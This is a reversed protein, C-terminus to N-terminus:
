RPNQARRLINKVRATLELPNVPRVLFDDVVTSLINARFGEDASSGIAVIPADSIRSLEQCLAMDSASNDSLNVIILVPDQNCIASPAENTQIVTVSYGATTLDEQIRQMGFLDTSSIIILTRGPDM